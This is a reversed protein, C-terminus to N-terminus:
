WSLQELGAENYWCKKFYVVLKTVDPPFHCSIHPQWVNTPCAQRSQSDAREKPSLGTNLGVWLDKQKITQPEM